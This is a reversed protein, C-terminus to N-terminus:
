TSSRKLWSRLMGSVRDSDLPKATYYMAGQARAIREVQESHQAAVYMLIADPALKSIRKCLWGREAAPVIEDDLVVVRINRGSASGFPAGPDSGVEMAWPSECVSSVLMQLSQDRTLVLVTPRKPAMQMMGSGIALGTKPRTCSTHQKVKFNQAKVRTRCYGPGCDGRINVRSFRARYADPTGALVPREHRRKWPIPPAIPVM